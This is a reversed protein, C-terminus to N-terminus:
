KPSWGPTFGPTLGDRHGRNRSAVGTMQGPDVAGGEFHYTRHEKVTEWVSAGKSM